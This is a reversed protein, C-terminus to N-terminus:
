DNIRDVGKSISIKTDSYEFLYEIDNRSHEELVKLIMNKKM